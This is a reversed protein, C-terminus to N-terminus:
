VCPLSDASREFSHLIWRRMHSPTSDESRGARLLAHGPLGFAPLVGRLQRVSRLRAPLVLHRPVIRRWGTGVARRRAVGHGCRGRRRVRLPGRGERRAYCLDPQPVCRGALHRFRRQVHVVSRAFRCRMSPPVALIGRLLAGQVFRATLYKSDALRTVRTEVASAPAFPVLSVPSLSLSALLSNLKELAANWASAAALLKGVIGTPQSDLSLAVNRYSRRLSVLVAADSAVARAQTSFRGRDAAAVVPADATRQQVLLTTTGTDDPMVAETAKLVDVLPAVREACAQHIM